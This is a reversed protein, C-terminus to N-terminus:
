ANRASWDQLWSMRCDCSWPNGCLFLNELQPMNELLNPPLSRLLNDSLYLHKLSSVPFRQLLSFTSFTAHHLKQLFNAELHLLRLSTMGSFADPHIFEIRNHDLHLRILGTLGSFTHGTIVRLKNYSMKLVQLSVLDQFAGDSIKQVNNGHMMLLELKRLGGFSVDTIHNIANFGFNIRLVQKFIGAPVTALARFTCHVEASVSCACQRPCVGSSGRSSVLLMLMLGVCVPSGM